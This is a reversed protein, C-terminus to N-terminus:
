FRDRFRVLHRLTKAPRIALRSFSAIGRRITVSSAVGGSSGGFGQGLPNRRWEGAAADCRKPYHIASSVVVESAGQPLRFNDAVGSRCTEPYTRIEACIRRFSNPRLTGASSKGTIVREARAAKPTGM